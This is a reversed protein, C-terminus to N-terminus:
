VVRRFGVAQSPVDVVGSHLQMVKRAEPLLMREDRDRAAITDFIKLYHARDAMANESRCLYQWGGMADVCKKMRADKLKPPDNWGHRRILEVLRGWSEGATEESGQMLKMAIERIESVKPFWKSSHIHQMISAKFVDWQLEEALQAFLAFRMQLVEKSDTKGSEPYEALLLSWMSLLEKKQNQDM